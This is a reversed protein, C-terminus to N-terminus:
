RVLIVAELVFVAFQSPHDLPQLTHRTRDSGISDRCSCNTCPM